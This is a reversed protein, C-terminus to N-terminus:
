ISQFHPRNSFSDFFFFILYSSSSSSLSSHWLNENIQSFRACQNANSRVIENGKVVMWKISEVYIILRQTVKANREPQYWWWFYIYVCSVAVIDVSSLLYKSIYPIDVSLCNIQSKNGHPSVDPTVSYKTEKAKTQGEMM